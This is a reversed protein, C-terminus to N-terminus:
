RGRSQHSGRKGGKKGDKRRKNREIKAWKEEAIEEDIRELAYDPFRFGMKRLAVLRSRFVKLTPDTFQAGAVPHDIPVRKAKDLMKSVVRDRAVFRKWEAETPAGKKFTVPPPLSKDYVIRNSAVWTTFGGRCDAYCYLDCQFDDSSWRCYSM